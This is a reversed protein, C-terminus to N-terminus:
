ERNIVIESINKLERYKQEVEPSIKGTLTL